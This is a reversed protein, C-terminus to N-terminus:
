QQVETVLRAGKPRSRSYGMHRQAPESGILTDADAAQTLLHHPALPCNRDVVATGSNEPAHRCRTRHFGSSFHPAGRCDRDAVETESNDPARCDYMRHLGSSLHLLLPCDSDAVETGANLPTHCDHMHYLVACSFGVKASLLGLRM